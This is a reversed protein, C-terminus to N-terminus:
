ECGQSRSWRQACLECIELSAKIGLALGSIEAGLWISAEPNQPWVLDLTHFWICGDGEGDVAQDAEMEQCDEREGLSGARLGRIHGEVQIRGTQSWAMDRQWTNVRVARRRVRIKM